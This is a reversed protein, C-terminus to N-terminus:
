RTFSTTGNGAGNVDSQGVAIPVGSSPNSSNVTITIPTKETVVGGGCGPILSCLAIGIASIPVRRSHHM